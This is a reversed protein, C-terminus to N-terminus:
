QYQFEPTALILGTLERLRTTQAAPALNEFPSLAGTEDSGAFEILVSRRVMGLTGDFLLAEFYDILEDPTSIGNASLMADIDWDSRSFSDNLGLSQSFKMRELLNLTDMWDVGLESYGDPADRQFLDMGMDEDRDPLDDRIVEAGLARFGSNIFEFPTKIKSFHAGEIWFGNTQEVPDFISNLVTAINGKPATSHWAAIADDMMTLLWEPATRQQYTNLTIEDSVFRNVLKLCIFEATAQNGVLADIVDIADNVGDIGTRGAPIDVQYSTGDFIVKVGIDHEGPNFRFTWVGDAAAENISDASFNQQVLRPILSFDSSTLGTNHGQIAIVNLEPAENLDDAFSALDIVAPNGAEHSGSTENYAPPSGNNRMTNSRAIEKGNLYAVYGDDYDVELVLADFGGSTVTFTKRVYVSVYGAQVGDDFQMDTLETTDDGDGYGFGSPGSEWGSPIYDVATWDITPDGNLDPSPEGTGRFFDWNDGADIIPTESAVSISPTILPTRALAPFVQKDEPKVKRITWGTFCRALEEIDFQTYGNDVGHSHLELIERAYNENPADKLNLVSDLYILMTPSAASFLLLDGFNGLGNEYFFEYEDYELSAAETRVQSSARSADINELTQYVDLDEFYDRVKDYDTTFHNEWFEGMVTQLQKRSYIGRLHLLHHLEEVGKVAVFPAASGNVLEPIITADSSTLSANHLEVALTNTGTVLHIKADNIVWESQNSRDDVNGAARDAPTDHFLPSASLNERAVEVGNLYAVFGDDYRVRLILNEIDAPDALDFIQRVYVSLYGAHVGDEFRMDDLVTADDGDGYGIGTVGEEWTTDDFGTANWDVPPTSVGRFFRCDAGVAMLAEGGYPLFEYFLADVKDNLDTNASEDIANPALQEAIYAETGLTGIRAVDSPSPGYGLRNLVHTAQSDELIFFGGDSYSANMFNLGWFMAPPVVTGEGIMLRALAHAGQEPLTFRLSGSAGTMPGSVMPQWVIPNGAESTVELVAYRYGPPVDAFIQLDGDATFGISSIWPADLVQSRVATSASVVVFILISLFDSKLRTPYACQSVTRLRRKM